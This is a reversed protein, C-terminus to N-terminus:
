NILRQAAGDQLTWDLVNGKSSVDFVIQGSDSLVELQMRVVNAPATFRVHEGSTAATVVPASTSSTNPKESQALAIDLILFILLLSTFLHRITFMPEESSNAANRCQYCRVRSIM